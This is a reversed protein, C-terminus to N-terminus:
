EIREQCLVLAAHYTNRNNEITQKQKKKTQKVSRKLEKHESLM